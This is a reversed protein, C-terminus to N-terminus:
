ACDEATDIVTETPDSVATIRGRSITIIVTEKTLEGTTDDWTVDTVVELTGGIGNNEWTVVRPLALDRARNIRENQKKHLPIAM